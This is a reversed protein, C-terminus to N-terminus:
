EGGSTSFEVRGVFAFRNEPPHYLYIADDPKLPPLLKLRRGDNTQLPGHELLVTLCARFAQEGFARFLSRRGSRWFGQPQRAMLIEKYVDWILVAPREPSALRDCCSALTEIFRKSDFKPPLLGGIERRAAAVIDQVNLTRLLSEGVRARHNKEDIELRVVRQIYFQPWQGDVTWGNGKMAERLDAELSLLAERATEEFVEIMPELPAELRKAWKFGPARERLWSAVVYPDNVAGSRTLRRYELLLRRLEGSAQSVSAIWDNLLSHGGQRDEHGSAGGSSSTDASM